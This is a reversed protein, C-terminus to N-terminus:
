LFWWLRGVTRRVYSRINVYIFWPILIILLIVVLFACRLGPILAALLGFLILLVLTGLITAVIATLVKKVIADNQSGFGLSGGTSSAGQGSWSQQQYPSAGPNTTAWSPVQAQVQPQPQPEAQQYPAQVGLVAGCNTCFRSNADLVASCRPCTNSM